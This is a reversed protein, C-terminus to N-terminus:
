RSDGITFDRGIAKFVQRRARALLSARQGRGTPSRTDRPVGALVAGRLDDSRRLPRSVLAIVAPVRGKGDVDFEILRPMGEGTAHVVVDIVVPKHVVA